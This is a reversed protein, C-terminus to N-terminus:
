NSSEHKLYEALRQRHQDVEKSRKLHQFKPENKLYRNLKRMTDRDAFDAGCALCFARMTKVSVDDWAVLWSLRKVDALSLHGKSAKVIEEDTMARREKPFVALSRVLVPPYRLLKNWINQSAM